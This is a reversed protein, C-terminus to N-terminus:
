SCAGDDVVFSMKKVDVDVDEQFGINDFGKKNGDVSVEQSRGNEEFEEKSIDAEQEEDKALGPNESAKVDVQDETDQQIRINEDEKQDFDDKEDDIDFGANEFAAKKIEQSIHQNDGDKEELESPTHLITKAPVEIDNNNSNEAPSDGISDTQFLVFKLFLTLPLIIFHITFLYNLKIFFLLYDLM